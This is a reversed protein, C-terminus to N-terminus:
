PTFWSYPLPPRSSLGPEEPKPAQCPCTKGYQTRLWEIATKLVDEEHEVWIDPTLGVGQVRHGNPTFYEAITVIIAGGDPLDFPRQVVGKGFSTRGILIGMQHDRLAGAVIESASASGRNILVALPLDPRNNGFSKYLETGERRNEARLVLKDRALFLSALKQGSHLLGGPNNRLDLIYAQIQPSSAFMADLAKEVAESTQENFSNVQVYAIQGDDMLEHTVVRIRIIERVITITEETGDEHQVTITVPTGQEGRLKRVAEEQTIGVTSRGEIAKIWDGARVGLKIAPGGRLPAVVKLIGDQVEIQVGIGGFENIVNKEFEKVFRQYEAAPLYRTYPDGLQEILGQIAGNILTQDDIKEPRYFDSKIREFIAQINSFPLGSNQSIGPHGVLLLWAGVGLLLALAVTPVFKQWIKRMLVGKVDSAM